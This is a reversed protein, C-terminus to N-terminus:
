MSCSRCSTWAHRESFAASQPLRPDNRSAWVAGTQSEANVVMSRFKYITFNQGRIGVRTQRFLVPGRSTLRVALAVLLLIPSLVVLAIGALLVSYFTQIRLNRPVPGLESSFILQSHRLGRTPVRGFATQFTAAAEEIHLGSFRMHLLDEVPLKQRREDMGVM